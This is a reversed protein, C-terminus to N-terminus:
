YDRPKTDAAVYLPHSPSGDGTVKLCHLKIRNARLLQLVAPGRGNVRGHKGWAAIVIESERAREIIHLDNEPGVPAGHRKLLAPDTSRLAFINTVHLGDMGWRRAFDIMRRVTPDNATEDATSPNLAIFNAFRGAPAGWIRTLSYRYARCDSFQATSTM